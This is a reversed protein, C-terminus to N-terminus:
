GLLLWAVKTGSSRKSSMRISFKNYTANTSFWLDRGGLNVRPTLLVFSRSTVDVGPTVTIRTNGAAITAVGSTSFKVRGAAQLALGTPTGQGFVGVGARSLSQGYVGYTTGRNHSATGVVGRGSTSSTSGWVGTAKGTPARAHGTVGFGGPSESEGNVGTTSGTPHTAWGAVGTGDDESTIGVFAADGTTSIITSGDGTHSAGVLVPDGDAARVQNVRGIATAALAGIGGLAGALLARRSPSKSEPRTSATM